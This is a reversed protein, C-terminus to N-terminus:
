KTENLGHFYDTNASQDESSMDSDIKGLHGGGANQPYGAQIETLTDGIFKHVSKEYVDEAGLGEHGFTKILEDQIALVPIFGKYTKARNQIFSILREKLESNLQPFINEQVSATKVSSNEVLSQLYKKLGIEEIYANVVSDVTLYKQRGGIISTIQNYLSDINQAQRFSADKELSEAFQDLWEVKRDLFVAKTSNFAVKKM